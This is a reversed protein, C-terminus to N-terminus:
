ESKAPLRPLLAVLGEFLGLAGATDHTQGDLVRGMFHPKREPLALIERVPQARPSPDGEASFHLPPHDGAAIDRWQLRGQPGLGAGSVIYGDFTDAAGELFHEALGTGSSFTFLLETGDLNMKKRARPLLEDAIFSAFPGPNALLDRNRDTNHIAIVVTPNTGAMHTFHDVYAAALDGFDEGDTVVLVTMPLNDGNEPLHFDVVRAEDLAESHITVTLDPDAAAPSATLAIASLLTLWRRM